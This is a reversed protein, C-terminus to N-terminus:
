GTAEQKLDAWIRTWGPDFETQSQHIASADRPQQPSALVQRLYQMLRLLTMAGPQGDQLGSVRHAAADLLMAVMDAFGDGQAMNLTFRAGALLRREMPGLTHRSLHRIDCGSRRYQRASNHDASLDLITLAPQGLDVLLAALVSILPQPPDNLIVNLGFGADRPALDWIAKCDRMWFPPALVPRAGLDLRLASGQPTDRASVVSVETLPGLFPALAAGVDDPGDSLDFHSLAFAANVYVSQLDAHVDGVEPVHDLWLHRVPRQAMVQELDRWQAGAEGVQRIQDPTLGAQIGPNLFIVSAPCSQCFRPLGAGDTVQDLYVAVPGRHTLYALTSPMVAGYITGRRSAEPHLVMLTLDNQQHLHRGTDRLGQAMDAVSDRHCARGAQQLAPLLRDPEAAVDVIAMALDHFDGCTHMPHHPHYGEFGHALSLVPMDHAIAEATKIKLGTSFCMPILAADIQAYFDAVDEVWGLREVFDPLHDMRDCITGGLVITARPLYDHFVPELEALFASINRENIANAAGMIGFRVGLNPPKPYIKHPTLPDMHPLSIVPRQTLTSLSQREEEKIAWVVDARTLATGEDAATMYFFEPTLGNALLMEKRGSFQDHTDLIRLAGPPAHDLARSLWTYNVIVADPRLHANIWGMAEGIAPDWWEDVGHFERKPDPHLPRTPPVVYYGDWAQMMAKQADKPLKGRWEAEAPYHLFHIKAGAQQLLHCIRFIRKRNGYDQPHSPTPSVVLIVADRWQDPDAWGSSPDPGTM